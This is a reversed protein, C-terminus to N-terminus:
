YCSEKKQMVSLQMTATGNEDSFIGYYKCSIYFFCAKITRCKADTKHLSFIFLEGAKKLLLLCLLLRFLHNDVVARQTVIWVDRFFVFHALYAPTALM